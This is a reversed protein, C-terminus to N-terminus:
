KDKGKGKGGGKSEGKSEGKGGGGSSSTDQQPEPDPEPEPEPEPGEDPCELDRTVEVAVAEIEHAIAPPLAGLDVGDRTRAYLLEAEELAACDDGEELLAALRDAGEALAGGLAADAIVPDEGAEPDGAGDDCAAAVVAVAAAVLLRVSRPPLSPM